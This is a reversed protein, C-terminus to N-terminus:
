FAYGVSLQIVNNKWGSVTVGSESRNIPATVGLNYRAGVHFNESFTYQLGMAVSVDFSKFKGLPLDDSSIWDDFDSGSITEGEASASRYVNLGLQPGILLSLGTIPKVEFLIPINIYNFVFNASGDEGSAAPSKQKGGQKSFVLEPQIGFFQGFSYNLFGGAHFGIAMGDRETASVEVGGGSVTIKSVSSLNVGAKLGFKVPKEQATAGFTM